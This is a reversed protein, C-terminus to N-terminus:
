KLEVEVNVTSVLALKVEAYGLHRATLLLGKRENEGTQGPATKEILVGSNDYMAWYAPEYTM